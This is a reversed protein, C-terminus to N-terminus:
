HKLLTQVISVLEPTWREKNLFRNAGQAGKNMGQEFEHPCGRSVFFREIMDTAKDAPVIMNLATIAANISALGGRELGVHQCMVDSFGYVYGCLAAGQGSQFSADELKYPATWQGIVNGVSQGWKAGDIALKAQRKASKRAGITQMLRSFM